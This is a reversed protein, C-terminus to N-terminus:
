FTDSFVIHASDKIKIKLVRFVWFDSKTSRERDYSYNKQMWQNTKEFDDIGKIALFFKKQLNQMADDSYKRYEIFVVGQEMIVSYIRGKTDYDFIDRFDLDLYCDGSYNKVDYVLGHNLFYFKETTELNKRESYFLHNIIQRPEQNLSINDIIKYYSWNDKTRYLYHLGHYNTTNGDGLSFFSGRKNVQLFSAQKDKATINNLSHIIIM